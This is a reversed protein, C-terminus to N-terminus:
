YAVKLIVPNLNGDVTKHGSGADHEIRPLGNEECKKEKEIFAAFGVSPRSIEVVTHETSKLITNFM